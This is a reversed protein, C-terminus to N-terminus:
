INGLTELYNKRRRRSMIEWKRKQAILVNHKKYM